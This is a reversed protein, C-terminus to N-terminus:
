IGTKVTLKTKPPVSSVTPAAEGVKESVTGIIWSFRGVRGNVPASDTQGVQIYYRKFALFGIRLCHWKLQKLNHTTSEPLPGPRQLNVM